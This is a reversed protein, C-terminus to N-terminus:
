YVRGDGDYQMPMPGWAVCSRGLSQFPTTRAVKQVDPDAPAPGATKSVCTPPWTFRCLAMKASHDMGSPKTVAMGTTFSSLSGKAQWSSCHHSPQASTARCPFQVKASLARFAWTAPIFSSMTDLALSPGKDIMLAAEAAWMGDICAGLIVASMTELVVPRCSSNDSAPLLSTMTDQQAYLSPHRSKQPSITMPNIATPIITSPAHCLTSSRRLGPAGLLKWSSTTATSSLLPGCNTSSPENISVTRNKKIFYRM